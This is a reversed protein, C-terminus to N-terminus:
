EKEIELEVDAALTLAFATHMEVGTAWLLGNLYISYTQM